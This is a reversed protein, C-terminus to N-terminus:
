SDVTLTVGSQYGKMVNYINTMIDTKVYIADDYLSLGARLFTRDDKFAIATNRIFIEKINLIWANSEICSYWRFRNIDHVVDSDYGGIVM